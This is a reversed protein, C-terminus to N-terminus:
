PAISHSLLKQNVSYWKPFAATTVLIALCCLTIAFDYIYEYRLFAKAKIVLFFKYKLFM